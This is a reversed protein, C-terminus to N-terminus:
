TAAPDGITTAPVDADIATETSPEVGRVKKAVSLAPLTSLACDIATCISLVSGVILLECDGDAFAAPQFLLSTVTVKAHASARDPISNQVEGTRTLVSPVPWIM